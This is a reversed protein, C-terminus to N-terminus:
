VDFRQAVVTQDAFVAEAGDGRGDEHVIVAGGAQAEAIRADVREHLRQTQEGERGGAKSM